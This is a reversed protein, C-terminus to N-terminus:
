SIHISENCLDKEYDISDIDVTLNLWKKDCYVKSEGTDALIIFEHSKDGGIPGTDAEM